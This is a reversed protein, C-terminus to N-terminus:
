DEKYLAYTKMDRIAYCALSDLLWSTTVSFIRASTLMFNANAVSIKQLKEDFLVTRIKDESFNKAKQVIHAGNMKSLKKMEDLNISEQEFKGIFLFEYDEFLGRARLRGLKPGGHRGFIGDGVVEFAAPDLLRSSKVCALIWLISVIWVKRSIAKLYKSTVGCILEKTSDVVLHTTTETVDDAVTAKIFKAFRKM